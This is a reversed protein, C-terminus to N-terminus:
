PVKVGLSSFNVINRPNKDCKWFYVLIKNCPAEVCLYLVMGLLLSALIDGFIIHIMWGGDFHYLDKMNVATLIIYIEHVLYISLTLKALPQWIPHSLFCQIPNRSPFFHCCIIMMGFMVTHILDRLSDFIFYGFSEYELTFSCIRILTYCLLVGTWLIYCNTKSSTFKKTEIVINQSRSTSNEIRYVIYGFCLGVIWQTLRYHTLFYM